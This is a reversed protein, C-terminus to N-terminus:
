QSHLEHEESGQVFANRCPLVGLIIYQGLEEESLATLHARAPPRAKYGMENLDKGTLNTGKIGMELLSM